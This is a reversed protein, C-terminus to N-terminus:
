YRVCAFYAIESKIKSLMFGAELLQMHCFCSFVCELACQTAKGDNKMPCDPCGFVFNKNSLYLLCLLTQLLMLWANIITKLM